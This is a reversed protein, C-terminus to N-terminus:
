RNQSLTEIAQAVARRRKAIPAPDKTFETMSKSISDPVTLLQKYRQRQQPSLQARHKDLLRQLMGLYEYDEIGDRLMEWRISGVPGQLIPEDTQQGAAAQPPYLFRGDGNGWPRRTGEPFDGHAQWSMPDQYPNQQSDPYAAPSTWYNTRWVLIGSIRRKWTQWLWVRLDTGAHDIFLGAYPAKPGTCIYWWFTEGHARRREAAERDFRDSLTCWINPGGVLAPEVQETLMRRIDPAASKLRDFGEKVFAYDKPAPEDFWYVYSEDLWGRQRLHSQLQKWYSDFAANYLPTGAEHNLLTPQWRNRFNGGGMGRDPLRLTNFHYREFGRQVARDWASFDLKAKVQEPDDRHVWEIEIPDLPAPNYPSIHHDAYSQWYKRLVERRQSESELNHYRWVNGPSFGFATSLTMRDPLTFDFVHVRLPVQITAEGTKVRLTGEYDGGAVDKPVHLRVWIPQNQGANLELPQTLPPLPDPWAAIAGAEDTPQQLNLYQVRLLDIHKAPIEAGDPGHLATAEITVDDLPQRPHLVLQRAEAENRAARLHLAQATATPMPRKRSVKWGSSASWLGLRDTTATLRRGYDRAFLVARDVRARAQFLDGLRLKLVNQGTGVLKPQFTVTTKGPPLKVPDGAWRESAGGDARTTIGSWNASFTKGSKNVITARAAADGGRLDGLSKIRVALAKHQDTVTVFDTRGAAHVAPGSLQARYQYRSVQLRTPSDEATRLRVWVTKAPLFESPVHFTQVAKERM